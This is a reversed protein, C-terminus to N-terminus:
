HRDSIHWVDSQGSTAIRGERVAKRYAAERQLQQMYSAMAGQVAPDNAATDNLLFMGDHAKIM